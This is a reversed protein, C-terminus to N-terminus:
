ASSHGAPSDGRATHPMPCVPVHPTGHPTGPRSSPAAEELKGQLGQALHLAITKAPASGRLTRLELRPGQKWAGPAAPSGSSGATGIAPSRPGPGQGPRSGWTGRPDSPGPDPSDRLQTISPLYGANGRWLQSCEGAIWCRGGPQEAGTGLTKAWLKMGWCASEGAGATNNNALAWSPHTPTRTRARTRSAQTRCAYRCVPCGGPSERTVGSVVSPKGSSTGSTLPQVWPIRCELLFLEAQPIGWLWGRKAVASEERGWEEGLIPPSSLHGPEWVARSEEGTQGGRESQPPLQLAPNGCGGVGRGSSCLVWPDPSVTAGLPGWAVAAGPPSAHHPQM